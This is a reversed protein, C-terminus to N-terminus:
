PIPEKFLRNQIACVRFRLYISRMYCLEDGSNFFSISFAKNYNTNSFIEFTRKLLAKDEWLSHEAKKKQYIFPLTFQNWDFHFAKKENCCNAWLLLLSFFASLFLDEWSPKCYVNLSLTKHCIHIFTKNLFQDNAWM